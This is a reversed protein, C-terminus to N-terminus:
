KKAPSEAFFEQALKMNDSDNVERALIKKSIDVALSAVEKRMAKVSAEREEEIKIRAANLLADAEKKAEALKAAAEESAKKQSALLIENTKDGAGALIKEYDGVLKDAESKRQEAKETLDAVKGIRADLFKKVPKYVLVRLIIYLLVINLLNLLLDMPIKAADLGEM